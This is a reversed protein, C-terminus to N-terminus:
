IRRLFGHSAGVKGGHLVFKKMNRQLLTDEPFDRPDLGPDKFVWLKYGTDDPFYEFRHFLSRFALVRSTEPLLRKLKPSLMWSRCFYEGDGLVAKARRVSREVAESSLDADSPIHISIGEDTQEFELSGVRVLLGSTQRWTWFWRDFGYRGFSARHERVFRGFVSMTAFYCEESLEPPFEATVAARIMAALIRLGDEDPQLAAHLEEAIEESRYPDNLIRVPTEIEEEWVLRDAVEQPVGFVRAVSSLQKKRLLEQLAFRTM